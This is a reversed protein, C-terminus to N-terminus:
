MYIGVLVLAILLLVLIIPFLVLFPVIKRNKEEILSLWLLCFLYFIIAIAFVFTLNIMLLNKISFSEENKNMTSINAVILGIVAVFLSSFSIVQPLIRKSEKINEEVDKKLKIGSNIFNSNLYNRVANSQKEYSDYAKYAISMQKETFEKERNIIEAFRTIVYEHIKDVEKNIEVIIEYDDDRRIEIRSLKDIQSQIDAIISEFLEKNKM